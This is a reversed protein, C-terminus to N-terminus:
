AVENDPHLSCFDLHGFDSGGCEDCDSDDFGGAVLPYLHMKDVIAYSPVLYCGVDYDPEGGEPYPQLDFPWEVSTLSEYDRCNGIAEVALPAAREVWGDPFGPYFATSLHFVVMGKLDVLGDDLITTDLM